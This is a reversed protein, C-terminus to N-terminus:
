MKKVGWILKDSKWGNMYRSTVIANKFSNSGGHKYPYFHDIQAEFYSPTVGSECKKPLLLRQGTIDDILMGGNRKMNDKLIIIKQKQTFEQSPGVNFYNYKTSLDAYPRPARAAREFLDERKNEAVRRQGNIEDKPTRNYQRKPRDNYDYPNYKKTMNSDEYFTARM